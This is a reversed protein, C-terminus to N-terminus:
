LRLATLDFSAHGMAQRHKGPSAQGMRRKRRQVVTVHTLGWTKSDAFSPGTVSRLRIM